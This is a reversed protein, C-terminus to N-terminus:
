QWAAVVPVGVRRLRVRVWGELMRARLAPIWGGVANVGEKGQRYHAVTVKWPYLRSPYLVTWCYLLPVSIITHPLPMAGPQYIATSPDFLSLSGQTLPTCQCGRYFIAYSVTCPRLMGHPLPPYMCMPM